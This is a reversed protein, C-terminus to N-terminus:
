RAPNPRTRSSKLHAELACFQRWWAPLPILRRTQRPKPSGWQVAQPHRIALAQTLASVPRRRAPIFLPSQRTARPRRIACHQLRRTLMKVSLPSTQFSSTALHSPCMRHRPALTELCRCIPERVTSPLRHVHFTQCVEVLSRTTLSGTASLPMFM